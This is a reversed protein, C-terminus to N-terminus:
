AVLQRVLAYGGRDCQNCVNMIDKSDESALSLASMTVFEWAHLPMVVMSLKHVSPSPSFRTTTDFGGTCHRGTPTVFGTNM